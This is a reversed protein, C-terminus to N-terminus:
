IVIVFVADAPNRLVVSIYIYIYIYIYIRACTSCVDEDEECLRLTTALLIMDSANITTETYDHM